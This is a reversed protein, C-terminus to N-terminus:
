IYYEALDVIGARMAYKIAEHVNNVELKRFINKRHSNITHFSLNKELAIEKTTKGLAIERLVERETPTLKDHEEKKGPTNKVNLLLNSVHNCIFRNNNTACQLASVIEEKTDNKLAVSFSQNTLLIRRLFDESLDDSFLLWSVQPYREHLINLEESGSFDFLTYDLIVVAETHLRLLKVLEAKDSVEQMLRCEKIDKLLFLIGARTIDQNDALIFDRM